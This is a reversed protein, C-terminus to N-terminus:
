LAEAVHFRITQYEAKDDTANTIVGILMWTGLSNLAATEAATLHGPWEGNDPTIVRSIAPTDGNYRQVKITCIYGSISEGDRDFSFPLSRGKRVTQMKGNASTANETM